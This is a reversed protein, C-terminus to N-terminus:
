RDLPPAARQESDENEDSLPAWVPERKEAFARPGEEQDPHGWMSVLELAGARCADTLGVELAGWLAKKTARMAAPSNRAIKEALTQAEDRLQEPPDVIQSIMGLQYAREASLREHRGLFAMRMVAEFPMRRALGVAELAVVQGVSVHPDFFQADSAAMVIDADAVWHFGGGACIGNVATIVPKWVHQHWATFHVDFDEMSQRYREMGIGDSAIEAVDVGTQFARGEGTHVIVRVDPDADLETWALAFEERMLANMANLRDPRNNVLWGVPGRREVILTEYKSYNV